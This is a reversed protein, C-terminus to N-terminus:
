DNRFGRIVKLEDRLECVQKELSEIRWRNNAAIGAMASIQKFLTIATGLVSCIGVAISLMTMGDM